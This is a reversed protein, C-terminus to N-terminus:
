EIKSNEEIALEARIKKIADQYSPWNIFEELFKGVMINLCENASLGGYYEQMVRINDYTEQTCWFNIKKTRKSLTQEYKTRMMLLNLFRKEEESLTDAFEENIKIQIYNEKKKTTRPM